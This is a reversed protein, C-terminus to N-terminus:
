DPLRLDKGPRFVIRENPPCRTFVGTKPNTFERGKQRKVWFSGFGRIEIRGKDFLASTMADFVLDVAIELDKKLHEPFSEQLRLVLNRKLVTPMKDITL